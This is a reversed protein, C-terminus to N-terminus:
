TCTKQSIINSASSQRTSKQDDPSPNTAVSITWCGLHDILISSFLAVILGVMPVKQQSLQQLAENLHQLVGLLGMIIQWEEEHLSPNQAVLYSVIAERLAVM